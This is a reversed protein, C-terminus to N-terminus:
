HLGQEPQEFLHLEQILHREKIVNVFKSYILSLLLFALYVLQFQSVSCHEADFDSVLLTSVDLSILTLPRECVM